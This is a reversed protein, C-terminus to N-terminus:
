AASRGKPGSWSITILNRSDSCEFQVADGQWWPMNQGFQHTPQNPFINPLRNPM